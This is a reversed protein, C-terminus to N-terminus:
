TKEEKSEKSMVYANRMLPDPNDYYNHRSAIIHFGFTNYMHIAATNGTAVELLCKQPVVNLYATLLTRGIGNNQYAPQVAFTLIDNTELTTRGLIFGALPYPAAKELPSDSQQAVYDIGFGFVGGWEPKTFCDSFLEATWGDPFCLSHIAAMSFADDQVLPRPATFSSSHNQM